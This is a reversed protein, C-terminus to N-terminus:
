EEPMASGGGRGLPGKRRALAAATGDPDEGFREQIVRIVEDRSAGHPLKVDPCAEELAMVLEVVDMSSLDGVDM